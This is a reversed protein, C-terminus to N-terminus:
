IGGKVTTPQKWNWVVVILIAVLAGIFFWTASNPANLMFHTFGSPEGFYGSSATDIAADATKLAASEAMMTSTSSQSVNARYLFNLGVAALGSGVMAPIIGKTLSRPSILIDKNSLEYIPIRKGKVSWLFSTQKILGTKVLKQINYHVTNLPLKLVKAADGESMPKEAIVGLIKKATKNSLVEAIMVSRSDNLDVM